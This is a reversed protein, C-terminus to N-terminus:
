SKWDISFLPTVYDGTATQSTTTSSVVKQTSSSKSWIWFDLGPTTSTAKTATTTKATSIGAFLM